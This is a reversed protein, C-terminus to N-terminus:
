KFIINLTISIIYKHHPYYIFIIDLMGEMKEVNSTDFSSLDLYELEKCNQFMLKMNKVNKTIFKDIGKIEKLKKCENFM